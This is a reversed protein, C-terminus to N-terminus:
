KTLNKTIKYFTKPRFKLSKLNLIKGSNEKPFKLFTYWQHNKFYYFVTNGPKGIKLFYSQSVYNGTNKEGEPFM